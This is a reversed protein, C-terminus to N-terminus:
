KDSKQEQGECTVGAGAYGSSDGLAKVLISFDVHVKFLNGAKMAM